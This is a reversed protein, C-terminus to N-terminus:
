AATRPRNAPMRAGKGCHPCRITSGPAAPSEWSHGCGPRQPGARCELRFLPYKGAM